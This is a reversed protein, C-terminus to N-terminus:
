GVVAMFALLADVRNDETDLIVRLSYAADDYELTMMQGTRKRDWSESFAEAM